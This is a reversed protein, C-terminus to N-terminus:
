LHAKRELDNKIKREREKETQTKFILSERIGSILGNSDDTPCNKCPVKGM